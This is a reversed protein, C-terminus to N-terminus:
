KELNREVRLNGKLLIIPPDDDDYSANLGLYNFKLKTHVTFVDRSIVHLLSTNGHKV